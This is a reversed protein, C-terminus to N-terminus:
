SLLKKVIESVVKGDAKGKLDAMSARMLVNFNVNEPKVKLDEYIKKIIAEAEEQSMQKPLYQNLIAMEKEENEALEKREGKKYLEISERHKKAEKAIVKLVDEETLDHQVEIKYYNLASLLSRLVLMRTEDHAKMAAVLDSKIQDILM